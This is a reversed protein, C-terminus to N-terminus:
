DIFTNFEAHEGKMNDHYPKTSIFYCTVRETVNYSPYIFYDAKQLVDFVCKMECGFVRKRSIADTDKEDHTLNLVRGSKKLISLYVGDNDYIKFPINDLYKELLVNCVMQVVEERIETPQVYPNNPINITINM